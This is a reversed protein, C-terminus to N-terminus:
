VDSGDVRFKHGCVALAKESSALLEEDAGEERRIALATRFCDRAEIYRGQDFLNKGQHQYFFSRLHMLEEKEVERQLRAFIENSRSFNGMWQYTHALRLQNVFMRQPLQAQRAHSLAKKLVECSEGLSGVMRLYVGMQGLLRTQETQDETEHLQEKLYAIGKTMEETCNPIERLHEDFIFGMDYPITKTSM